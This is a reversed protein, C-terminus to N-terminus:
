NTRADTPARGKALGRRLQALSAGLVVIAVAIMQLATLRDGIAGWAILATAVPTLNLLVNAEGAHLRHLAHNFLLYAALTNVLALGVLIGWTPLPIDPIGEFVAAAVLLLGGGIALPVATLATNSIARTRALDRGLVPMVAFGVTALGLLAMANGPVPQLGSSFFLLSGVMATLVGLLHVRSPREKLYAVELLLVPIPVLSIALSAATSSVARLALFLVGNGIAYQSVGIVALRIWIGAPLRTPLSHRLLAWPVLIAAAMSYRTAAITLPGAHELAVKVGVFSSGWIGAVLLVEGIPLVRAGVSKRLGGKRGAMSSDYGRMAHDPPAERDVTQGHPFRSTSSEATESRGRRTFFTAREARPWLCRARNDIAENVEREDKLAVGHRLLSARSDFARPAELSEIHDQILGHLTDILLARKKDEDFLATTNFGYHERPEPPFGSPM